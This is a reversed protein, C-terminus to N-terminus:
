FGLDLCRLVKFIFFPSHLFTIHSFQLSSSPVTSSLLDSTLRFLDSLHPLTLLFYVSSLRTHRYIHIHPPINFFGFSHLLM